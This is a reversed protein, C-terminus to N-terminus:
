KAEAASMGQGVDYHILPRYQGTASGNGFPRFTQFKPPVKTFYATILKESSETL